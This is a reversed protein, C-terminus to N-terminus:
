RSFWRELNEYTYENRELFKELDVTVENYFNRSNRIVEVDRSNNVNKLKLHYGIFLGFAELNTIMCHVKSITVDSLPLDLVRKM